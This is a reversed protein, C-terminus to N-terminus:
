VSIGSVLCKRIVTRKLGMDGTDQFSDYVSVTCRRHDRMFPLFQLFIVDQIVWGRHPCNM